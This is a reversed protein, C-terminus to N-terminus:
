QNELLDAMVDDVIKGLNVPGEVPHSEMWRDFDVRRVYMKGGVRFAPLPNEERLLWETLTRRSVSVYQTLAKLDLWELAIVGRRRPGNNISIPSNPLAAADSSNSPVSAVPKKHQAPVDVTSSQAEIEHKRLVGM